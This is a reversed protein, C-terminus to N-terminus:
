SNTILDPPSIEQHRSSLGVALCLILLLALVTSFLVCGTRNQQDPGSPM